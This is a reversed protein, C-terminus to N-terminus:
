EWCERIHDRLFLEYQWDPGNFLLELLTERLDDKKMKSVYDVVLKQLKELRKEEEQEAQLVDNYFQEAEEPFVAFYLAVMHKCIIRKGNAHPCNCKSTRPKDLNIEVDYDTGSGSVKGAYTHDNVKKYNLVRKKAFYDYGRWASASSALEILGM